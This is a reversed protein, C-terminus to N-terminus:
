VSTSFELKKWSFPIGFAMYFLLLSSAMLHAAQQHLLWLWDDVYLAGIHDVFIFQHGLSHFFAAQGLGGIPALALVLIVYKIGM